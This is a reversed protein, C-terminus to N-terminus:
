RARALIGPRVAGMLRGVQIEEYQDGGGAGTAVANSVGIAQLNAASDCSLVPLCILDSEWSWVVYTRIYIHVPFFAAM